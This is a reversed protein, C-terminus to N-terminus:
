GHNDERSTDPTRFNRVDIKGTVANTILASRYENLSSIVQRVKAAQDDISECIRRLHSVLTVQEVAPPVVVPLRGLISTNLNDMTSGVSQLSLYEAVGKMSFQYLLFEPNLVEQNLRARLSGTGCLWGVNRTRVLGARGMEGRRAIVIDGLDLKHRLLREVIDEGVTIKPNELIEGDSIDTPNILPVGGEIYEEAHLQSGFPGTQLSEAMYSLKSVTWNTPIKGLWAVGSDKMPVSPDLGKTVAHSILATRKEALKDLLTQQKAILADIQATKFDLFRAIIQQEDLPPEVAPIRVLDSANIAPYSVGVSNAVVNGVFGNSQLLYGAFGSHLNEKPRVVAFGTSVIMNEPPNCIPAIAKLYTRVTSVIIDGDKVKRRARSPAKEFLMSETREIGNILTVSSIDVYDIELDPDTREDLAEDNHTAVNKVRKFEWHEPIEKLWACRTPKYKEYQPYLAM